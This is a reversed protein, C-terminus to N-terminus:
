LIGLLVVFQFSPSTGGITYAVRWYDDTVAGAVEVWQSGIASAQTFSGRTTASTMGANDDSVIDIDLTPSSGSAALVHLSAYLRQSASIAGLQRTTGNGSATRTNNHMLTGRVLGGDSCGANLSFGALDGVAGSLPNYEGVHAQMAYGISGDASDNAVTIINGSVGLAAALPSDPDPADFYGQASLISQLLGGVRRRTTDSFATRDQPEASHDITVATLQNSLNYGGFLILANTLVQEAM